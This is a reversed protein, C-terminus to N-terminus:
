VDLTCVFLILPCILIVIMQEILILCFVSLICIYFRFFVFIFVVEHWHKQLVDFSFNWSYCSLTITEMSVINM